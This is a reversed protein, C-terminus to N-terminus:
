PFSDGHQLCYISFERVVAPYNCRTPLPWSQNVSNASLSARKRQFGNSECEIFAAEEKRTKHKDNQLFAYLLTCTASAGVRATYLQWQTLAAPHLSILSLCLSNCANKFIRVTYIKM